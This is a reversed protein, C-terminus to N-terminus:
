MSVRFAAAPRLITARAVMLGNRFSTRALSCALSKDRRLFSSSFCFSPRFFSRATPETTISCSANWFNRALYCCYILVEMRTWVVDYSGLERPSIDIPEQMTGSGWRAAGSVGIDQTGKGLAYAALSLRCVVHNPQTEVGESRSDLDQCAVFGNGLEMMNEKM